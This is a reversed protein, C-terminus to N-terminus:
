EQIDTGYLQCLLEVIFSAEKSAISYYIMKGDRRTTVLKDNRLRALQQSITPQRLDLISELETVSKESQYLLCLIVLRSEHAMAKLMDSAINARNQLTELSVADPREIINKQHAIESVISPFSVAMKFEMRMSGEHKNFM